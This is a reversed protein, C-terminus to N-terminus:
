YGVEVKSFRCIPVGHGLRMIQNPQGKGCQFVQQLQWTEEGGVMDLSNWFPVSDGRYTPNRVINDIKGDSIKFGIQCAFHFNERNSGISWSRPSELLIGNKTNKIMDSVSGDNGFKVNINNMRDIPPKNYSQARCAGGSEKFFEKKMIQNAEVVMQRSSITSQLVGNKILQINKGKVGEDDHGHTGPSCSTTGDAFSNLKSSGFQLLGLDALTVHSGGAFSLEYGLIRDLELAHGITEHTQLAMMENLLIVDCAEKKCLPARILQKLEKNLREGHDIQAKNNLNEFGVTLKPDQYLNFTREQLLQDKDLANTYIQADVDVINKTLETGESDLYFIEREYFAINSGYHLVTKDKLPASIELIKTIKEEISVDSPYIETPTSYSEKLIEKSILKVPTQILQGSNKAQNIAFNSAQTLQNIDEVSCFGFAGNFLVRIGLGFKKELQYKELIGDCCSLTETTDKIHVRIDVYTAGLSKIREIEKRLLNKM